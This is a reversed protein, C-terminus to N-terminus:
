AHRMRGFLIGLAVRYTSMGARGMFRYQHRAIPQPVVVPAAPAPYSDASFLQAVHARDGVAITGDAVPLPGTGPCAYRQVSRRKTETWAM